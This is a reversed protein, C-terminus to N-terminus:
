TRHDTIRMKRKGMKIQEERREQSRFSRERPRLQGKRQINVKMVEVILKIHNIKM